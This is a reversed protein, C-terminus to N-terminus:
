HPEPGGPAAPLEIFFRTGGEPQNEAWIRGGQERVIGYSIFLGLGTGEEPPKTSFYPDFIRTLNEPAIGCGTDSIRIQVTDAGPPCRTAVSLARKAKRAMAARANNMLNLLVEELGLPDLLLVPLDPALDTEVRIGDLHFQPACLMLVHEILGNIDCREIRQRYKRTFRGLNKTISVIRNLQEKCIALTETGKETLPETLKMLQLRIAIINTPNLIEHAVGAALRGVAALKESQILLGQTTELEQITNRLKTEARKQQTIDRAVLIIGGTGGTKTPNMRSGSISVPVDKGTATKLRAERQALRGKSLVRHYQTMVAKPDELFFESIRRGILGATDIELLRAAAANVRAIALDGNLVFLADAMSGIINETHNRSALLDEELRHIRIGTELRALLEPPDFPKVLFDDAGAHLGALLADNTDRATVIVIYVYGPLDMGRVARCLSIGDMEPMLWDTIIIPFYTTALKQLAAKGNEASEVRYGAHILANELFRRSLRSDDVVLIPHDFTSNSIAM